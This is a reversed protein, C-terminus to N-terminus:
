KKGGKRYKLVLVAPVIIICAFFTAAIGLALTWGLRMTNVLTAFSLAMFGVITTITTVSIAQGTGMLAKQIAEELSGYQEMKEHVSHMLHISFDIGMGMLIALMGTTLVTFPLDIYGMLGVTWIIAFVIPIFALMGNVISRYFLSAILIVLIFGIVGTKITDNGMTEQFEIDEPIQGQPIIQVNKPFNIGDIEKLLEYYDDKEIQDYNLTYKAISYDENFTRRIDKHGSVLNKIENPNRPVRGQNYRKILSTPSDVSDVWRINEIISDLSDMPAMVRPDRLDHVADEDYLQETNANLLFLLNMSTTGGFNYGIESLSDVIDDGEPVWNEGDVDLYVLSFGPIILITCLVVGILVGIPAKVQINAIFILFSDILNKQQNKIKKANAGLKFITEDLKSYIYKRQVYMLPPLILISIIFAFAVGYSLVTGQVQSNPSIGLLMALFGALTTLVSAFLATGIGMVTDKTADEHGNRVNDHFRHTLHISYDVSIGIIMAGISATMVTIRIDNLYMIGSLWVLTL